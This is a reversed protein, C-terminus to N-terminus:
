FNAKLSQLEDLLETSTVYDAYPFRKKDSLYAKIIDNDSLGKQLGLLALKRFDSIAKAKKEYLNESKSSSTEQQRINLLRNKYNEDIKLRQQELEMERRRLGLLQQRYNQEITDREAQTRASALKDAADALLRNQAIKIDKLSLLIKAADALGAQEYQRAEKEVKQIERLKEQSLRQLELAQKDLIQQEKETGARTINRIKAAEFGETPVFGYRAAEAKAMGVDAKTKEKQREVEQQYIQELRQALADYINTIIPKQALTAQSLQQAKQELETAKKELDSTDVSFVSRLREVAQKLEEPSPPQYVLRPDVVPRTVVQPQPQSTQIPQTVVPQTVTPQPQQVTQKQEGTPINLVYGVPLKRPDGTFGLERWRAGSGLFRKAIGWLTDGRKVVYKM